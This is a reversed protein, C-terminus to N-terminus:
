RNQLYPFIITAEFHNGDPSTSLEEENFVIRYSVTVKEGPNLTDGKKIDEGNEYTLYRAIYKKTINDKGFIYPDHFLKAPITGDNLINFKYTVSDGVKQFAIRTHLGNDTLEGVVEKTEGKIEKKLDLYSLRFNQGKPVYIYKFYITGIVILLIGGIILWIIKKM